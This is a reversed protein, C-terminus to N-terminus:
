ANASCSRVNSEKGRNKSHKQLTRTASSRLDRGQEQLMDKGEGTRYTQRRFVLRFNEQSLSKLDTRM